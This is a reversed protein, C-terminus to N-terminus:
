GVADRNFGKINSPVTAGIRFVKFDFEIQREVADDAEIVIAEQKMFGTGGSTVVM